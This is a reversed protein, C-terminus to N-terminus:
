GGSQLRQPYKSRKCTVASDDPQLLFRSSHSFTLQANSAFCFNTQLIKSSFPLLPYPHSLSLAIFLLLSLPNGHAM